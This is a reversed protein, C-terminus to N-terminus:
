FGMSDVYTQQFDKRALPIRKVKSLISTLESQIKKSLIYRKAGKIPADKVFEVKSLSLRPILGTLIANKANISNGFSGTILVGSINSAEIDLQRMLVKIGAYIAAKALQLKRVDSQTIFIKINGKKFLVFGPHKVGGKRCRLPPKLRRETASLAPNMKGTKDILGGKLMEAVTDILGSGCIGKPSINGIVASKVSGDKMIRVKEIAGATAPMGCSICRGEFAPGAATSTVLIKDSSGLIIEGNTGIDIALMISDSDYINSAIILGIADSGVFSGINPLIIVPADQLINIGAEKAKITMKAKELAKYPPRILSEASLGLFLHHMATNCVVIAEKIDSSKFPTEKTLKKILGNISKLAAFKLKDANKPSKLSFDIRTIVDEGFKVQENLIFDSSIERRTAKNLLLGKITTTGIDLLLTLMKM